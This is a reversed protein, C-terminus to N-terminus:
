IEELATHRLETDKDLKKLAAAWIPSMAPDAKLQRLTRLSAVVNKKSLSALLRHGCEVVLGQIHYYNALLLVDSILETDTDSVELKAKYVYCLLASVVAPTTDKIELKGSCAEQMVGGFAAAFVPSAASLVARHVAFTAGACAVEADCFRREEWMNVLVGEGETSATKPKKRNVVAKLAADPYLLLGPRYDQEPLRGGDFRLTIWSGIGCSCSLSPRGGSDKCFRMSLLEGEKLRGRFVNSPTGCTGDQGWLNGDCIDLFFGKNQLARERRDVNVDNLDANSPIIGVSTYNGVRSLQTVEITFDTPDPVELLVLKGRSRTSGLSLEVGDVMAYSRKAM